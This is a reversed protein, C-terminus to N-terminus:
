IPKPIKKDIIKFLVRKCVSDAYRTMNNMITIVGAIRHVPHLLSSTGYKKHSKGGVAKAYEKIKISFFAACGCVITIAHKFINQVLENSPKIPIYM